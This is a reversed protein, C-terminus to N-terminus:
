AVISTIPLTSPALSPALVLQFTDINHVTSMSNSSITVDSSRLMRYRHWRTTSSWLRQMEDDLSLHQRVHCRIFTSMQSGCRPMATIILWRDIQGRCVFCSDFQFNFQLTAICQWHCPVSNYKSMSWWTANTFLFSRQSANGRTWRRIYPELM